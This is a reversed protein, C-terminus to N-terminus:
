GTDEYQTPAINKIRRAQEHRPFFCFVPSGGPRECKRHTGPDLGPMVRRSCHRV